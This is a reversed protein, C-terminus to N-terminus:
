QGSTMLFPGPVERIARTMTVWGAEAPPKVIRYATELAKKGEEQLADKWEPWPKLLISGPQIRSALRLEGAPTAELGNKAKQQFMKPLIPGIAGLLICSVVLLATRGRWVKSPRPVVVTPEHFAPMSIASLIKQRLGEPPLGGQLGELTNAVRAIERCHFRCHSCEALHSQIAARRPLDVWNDRLWDQCAHCDM